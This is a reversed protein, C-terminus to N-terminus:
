WEGKEYGNMFERLQNTLGGAGFRLVGEKETKRGNGEQAFQLFAIIHVRRPHINEIGEDYFWQDITNYIGKNVKFQSHCWNFFQLDPLNLYRAQGLKSATAESSVYGMHQFRQKAQLTDAKIQHKLFEISPFKKEGRVRFIVDCQVTEGYIVDNFDLIHVEFTKSLESGFTPKVGVNMVGIHELGRLHVLVGYVGNKLEEHQTDINATPFGLYRGQQRGPVVQGKIILKKSTKAKLAGRNVVNM